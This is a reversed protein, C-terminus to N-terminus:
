SSTERKKICSYGPGCNLPPGAQLHGLFIWTHSPARLAGLALEGLRPCGMTDGAQFYTQPSAAMPGAALLLIWLLTIVHHVMEQYYGGGYAAIYITIHILFSSTLM